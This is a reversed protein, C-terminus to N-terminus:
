SWGWGREMAEQDREQAGLRASFEADAFRDLEPGDFDPLIEFDDDYGADTM